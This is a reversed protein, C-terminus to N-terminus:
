EKSQSAAEWPFVIWRDHNLIRGYVGFNQDYRTMCFTYDCKYGKLAKSVNRYTRGTDYIDDVVLYKKRNDMPPMESRVLAKGRVPLAQIADVGLEEALLRAPIIGGRSIGLICDYKKGELKKALEKVLYTIEFWSCPEKGEIKRGSTGEGSSSNRKPQV